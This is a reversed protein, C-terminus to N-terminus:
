NRAVPAGAFPDDHPVDDIGYGYRASLFKSVAATQPSEQKLSLEWDRVVLGMNMARHFEMTKRSFLRLPVDPEQDDEPKEALEMASRRLAPDFVADPYVIGRAALRYNHVINYACILIQWDLWGQARLVALLDMFDPDTRLRPLTRSLIRPITVYRRGIANRAQAQDYTPGPGDRWQLEPDEKFPRRTTGSPPEARARGTIDYTDMPVVDALEDYPRGSALKHTLGREFARGVTEFFTEPSVLCCDLLVAAFTSLLEVGVAEPDMDTGPEFPTLEVTWLRSENNVASQPARPGAEAAALQVRVAIRAPLLCLEEDALEVMLIQAAAAFREAARCSVYDNTSTIVWQTGLAAFRIVRETGLDDFPRGQLQEDCIEFWQEATWDPAGEMAAEIAALMGHRNLVDEVSSTLAPVLVKSAGLCMGLAVMTSADLEQAAKDSELELLASQALMGIDALEVAGCWAGSVYDMQAAILLGKPVLDLIDDSGATEAARAAVLAYQKAALPLQLREYCRAILVTALLAGRITDGAWWDAKAAHLEHLAARVRGARFLRMGRDRCRAATAANGSTRSIAADVHDVLDRWGERDVLVPTLISLVEGFTDVPFMPTAELGRAVERWANMAGDIDMATWSEVVPERDHWGDLLEAANESPGEITSGSSRSVPDPQIGLHGVVYLLRARRTLGDEASLRRQVHARLSVNWARTQEPSLDSHGVQSATMAYSLLVSADEIRAVDEEEATLEEFFAQVVDEASRLDGLGRIAAVAVEYRARQRIAPPCSRDTLVRIHDSWFPLDPRADPHFTAHRLGRKLDLLEGLVAGPGERARWRDRLGLYWDPLEPEDAPPAPAFEAPISLHTEAVWFLDHQALSDAIALGDWIELRVGHREEVESILNHRTGVAIPQSAFFVVADVPTGEDCITKVDSRIKSPLRERQLTCAFALPGAAVSGVFAGHPGLEELLYSRFTEFDRGQDGGAAVPGTAPLINSCIRQRALKRCIEEFEHHASRTAMEDLQFRVYRVLEDPGIGAISAAVPEVGTLRRGRAGSTTSVGRPGLYPLTTRM